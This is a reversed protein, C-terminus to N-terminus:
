IMSLDLFDEVLITIIKESSINIHLCEGFQRSIRKLRMLFRELSFDPRSATQLLDDLRGILKQMVNHQCHIANVPNRIEHSVTRLEMSLMGKETREIDYLIKSSQDILQLIMSGSSNIGVIPKKNKRRQVRVYKKETEDRGSVDSIDYSFINREIKEHLSLDTLSYDIQPNDHLNLDELRGDKDVKHLKYVPMSVLEREVALDRESIPSEGTYHATM